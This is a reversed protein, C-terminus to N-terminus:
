LREWHWTTTTVLPREPEVTFALDDPPATQPEVCVADPQEDYVVLYDADSDIRLRLVGPWELVTPATIGEFCDDWPGPPPPTIRRGDPLGDAGRALMSTASLTIEVEAGDLRRPFWPHWGCSAPFSGGDSHVELQLMLRDEALEVRHLVHGAVPWTPGLEMRITTADVAVAPAEVVTGHIAHPAATLPMQHDAGDIRLLGRDLRGAFPAMVFCGWQTPADGNHALLDLGDVQLSALRGGYHLDVLVTAAGAEFGMGSASQQTM